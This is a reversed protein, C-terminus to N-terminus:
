SDKVILADRLGIKNFKKLITKKDNDYTTATLKSRKWFRIFSKQKTDKMAMKLKWDPVSYNGNIEIRDIKVRDGKNIDILFIESYNILTDKVRNIRVAANYFGKERFYGKIKNSTNFVLNESITKGAYLTIEERIKDAERRNIGKFKFKSLKPRPSLEIVLYIIGKIEKEAYINVKSFLGEEWLNNIANTIIQGPIQIKEGQRIGAILRIAQHDFNDAGLVRIPGVQFEQPNKYSIDLNGLQKPGDQSFLLFSWVFSISIIIYKM